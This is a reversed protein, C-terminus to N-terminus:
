ALGPHLCVKIPHPVRLHPPVSTKRRKKLSQELPGAYQASALNKARMQVVVCLYVALLVLGASLQAVLAVLVSLGAYQSHRVLVTLAHAQGHGAAM